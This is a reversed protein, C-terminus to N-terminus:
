ELRRVTGPDVDRFAAALCSVGMAEEEDEFAFAQSRVAELEALFSSRGRIRSNQRRLLRLRRAPGRARTEAPGVCDGPRHRDPATLGAQRPLHRVEGLGAPPDAKLAYIISRGDFLGLHVTLGTADCLQDLIPEAVLLIDVKRATASRRPLGASNREM